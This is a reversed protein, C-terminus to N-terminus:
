GALTTLVQPHPRFCQPTDLVDRGLIRLAFDFTDIVKDASAYSVDVIDLVNFGQVISRGQQVNSLAIAVVHRYQQGSHQHADTVFALEDGHGERRFFPRMDPRAGK